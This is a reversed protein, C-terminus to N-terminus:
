AGEVHRHRPREEAGSGLKEDLQRAQEGEKLMVMDLASRQEMTSSGLKKDLQRTKEGEKLMVMNFAIRQEQQSRKDKNLEKALLCRCRASQM